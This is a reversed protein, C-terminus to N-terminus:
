RDMGYTDANMGGLKLLKGLLKGVVGIGPALLDPVRFGAAVCVNSGAIGNRGAARRVRAAAPPVLREGRAPEEVSSDGGSVIGGTIM